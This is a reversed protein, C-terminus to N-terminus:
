NEFFQDSKWQGAKERRQGQNLERLSKCGDGM